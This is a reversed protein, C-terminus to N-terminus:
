SSAIRVAINLVMIIAVIEANVAVIMAVNATTPMDFMRRRVFPNDSPSVAMCIM